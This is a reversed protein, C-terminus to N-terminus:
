RDADSCSGGWGKECRKGWGLVRCARNAGRAAGRLARSVKAAGKWLGTRFRATARVSQGV